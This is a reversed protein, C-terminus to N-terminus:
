RQSRWGRARADLLLGHNHKVTELGAIGPVISKRGGGYGAFYHLCVDGTVIRLDADMFAKNLLVKTGSKHTTGIEVLDQAKSDHSITKIRDVIAEGLLRVAEDHTVARHTGCAFIVTINEDKIGAATLEDLIPAVMLGSPAPRTADDVLIVTKNESKAFESLRRSGLPEKLAKEIEARADAM